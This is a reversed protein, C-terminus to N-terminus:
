TNYMNRLDDITTAGSKRAVEKDDNLVVFTPVAMVQYNAAIEMNEAIDIIKLNLEDRISKTLMEKIQKCPRCWPACFFLIEEKM